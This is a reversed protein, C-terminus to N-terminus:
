LNEYGWSLEQTEQNVKFVLVKNQNQYFNLGSAMLYIGEETIYEFENARIGLDGAICFVEIGREKVKLLEPYVEENFNNPNTCFLCDGPGGNPISNILEEIEPNGYLWAMKHTLVVLYKSESLTDTVNKVLELQEEIIHSANKQTDLVLFTFDDKSYSYYTPRQTYSQVLPLSYYYDHNGLTWLTNPNSFDFLEDWSQIISENEVINQDMDGGLWLMEYESYDRNRLREDIEGAESGRTHSIHLYKKFKVEPLPTPLNEKCGFFLFLVSFLLINKM